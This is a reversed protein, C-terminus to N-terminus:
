QHIQNTQQEIVVCTSLAGGVGSGSGIGADDSALLGSVFRLAMSPNKNALKYSIQPRCIITNSVSRVAVSRFSSIVCATFGTASM